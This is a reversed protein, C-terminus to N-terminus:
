MVNSNCHRKNNRLHEWPDPPTSLQLMLHFQFVSPTDVQVHRNYTPATQVCCRLAPSHGCLSGWNTDNEDTTEDLRPLWYSLPRLPIHFTQLYVPFICQNVTFACSHDGSTSPPIAIIILTLLLPYPPIPEGKEEGYNREEHGEEGKRGREKGTMRGKRGM